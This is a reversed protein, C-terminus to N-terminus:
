SLDDRVEQSLLRDYATLDFPGREIAPPAPVSPRVLSSITQDDWPQGSDLALQVALEVDTQLYDAALKLLRLYVIEARPPPLHADLYEWARRFAPTPLLADFYRYRRFGGPKRLLSSVVHRYDVDARGRGTLRDKEAVLRGNYFFRIRWDSVQVLIIKGALGSHLSYRNEMVSVTGDGAVRPRLEHHDVLAAVTLVRMVALEELLRAKRHVNRQRAVDQVFREYVEVAPFDRSGRLLLHQLLARAFAGNLAEVDGNEDPSALHTTRPEVGYRDMLALYPENFARGGATRVQESITDPRLRHTAATTNDTQHYRPVHGLELVASQFSRQIALFSESPAIVPWEWNSYPLVSHILMHKLPRGAITVQLQNLCMGDTQMVLGPEHVQPLSLLKECNFVRWDSVRRQFTRLQGPAYRGPHRADLWGFLAAAELEPAVSLMDAVEAWDASFPDARTRYTRVARM